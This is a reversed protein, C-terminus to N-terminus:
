KPMVPCAPDTRCDLLETLQASWPCYQAGFDACNEEVYSPTGDCVEITLEAFTVTAPDVHFTWDCNYAAAECVLEGNPINAMSEGKWLAIAGDIGTPNTIHVRYPQGVVDFIALVGGGTPLDCASSGGSGGTGGDGGTGGVGGSGGVGGTGGSGGTTVTGGNGGSGGSGGSGGKGGTGDGDDGDCGSVGLVALAVCLVQLARLFSM